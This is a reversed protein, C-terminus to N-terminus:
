AVVLICTRMWSRFPEWGASVVSALHVWLNHLIPLVVKSPHRKLSINELQEIISHIYNVQYDGVETTSFDALEKVNVGEANPNIGTAHDEEPHKLSRKPYRSGRFWVESITNFPWPLTRHMLLTSTGVDSTALKDDVVLSAEFGIGYESYGAQMDSLAQVVLDIESFPVLVVKSDEATDLLLDSRLM